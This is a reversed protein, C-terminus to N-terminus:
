KKGLLARVLRRVKRKLLTKRRLYARKIPAGFIVDLNTNGKVPRGRYEGLRNLVFEDAVIRACYQQALEKNEIISCYFDVLCTMFFRLVAGRNEELGHRELLTIKASYVKKLDDLKRFNFSNVAGAPNNRYYYLYDPLCVVTKAKEYMEIDFVLDECLIMDEPFRISLLLESKAAFNCAFGFARDSALADYLCRKDQETRLCLTKEQFPVTMKGIVNSDIDMRYANFAVVDAPCNQLTERLIELMGPHIEDDADVFIIYDGQALGIGRNRTSSVGRNPQTFCRIKPNEAEYHEMIHWSNDASGDDILIIEYDNCTQRLISEVTKKLFAEANYVPVIISFLMGM